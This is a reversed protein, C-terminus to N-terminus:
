LGIKKISKDYTYQIGYSLVIVIPLLICYIEVASAKDEKLIFKLVLHYIPRHFLYMCMSVYSLFKIIKNIPLFKLWYCLSIFAVIGIASDVYYCKEGVVGIIKMITCLILFIILVYWKSTVNRVIPTKGYILGLWYFPLTYNIRQDYNPNILSLLIIFVFSFFIVIISKFIISDRIKSLGNSVIPTLMYFSFLLSIFWITTPPCGVYSGLGLLTYILRGLGPSIGLRCMLLASILFLPFFRTLRKKYFNTVEQKTCFTYKSLFYGSMFMFTGLMYTTIFGINSKIVELDPSNWSDLVHWVGVIWFTALVRVIDFQLDREKTM